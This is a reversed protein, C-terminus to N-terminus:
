GRSPPSGPGSLRRSPRAPRPPDGGERPDAPPYSRDLARNHLVVHLVHAAWLLAAVAIDAKALVPPLHLRAIAVLVALWALILGGGLLLSM